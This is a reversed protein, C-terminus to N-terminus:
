EPSSESKRASHGSSTCRDGDYGRLRPRWLPVADRYSRYSEGFRALLDREEPPRAVTHWLLAGALAYGVVLWDALFLGVGVGQAIGA